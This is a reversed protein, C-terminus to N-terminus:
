SQLASLILSYYPKTSSHIILFHKEINKLHFTSKLTGELKHHRAKGAVLVRTTGPENRQLYIKESSRSLFTIGSNYFRSNPSIITNTSHTTLGRSQSQHYRGRGFRLLLNSLLYLDRGFRQFLNSLKKGLTSGGVITEIVIRTSSVSNNKLETHSLANSVEVVDGLRKGNGVCAQSNGQGGGTRM